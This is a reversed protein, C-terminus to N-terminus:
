AAQAKRTTPVPIHKESKYRVVLVGGPRTEKLVLREPLRELTDDDVPRGFFKFRTSGAPVPGLTDTIEHASM